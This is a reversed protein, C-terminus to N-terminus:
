ICRGLERSFESARETVGGEELVRSDIWIRYTGRQVIDAVDTPTRVGGVFLPIGVLAREGAAAGIAEPGGTHRLFDVGVEVALTIEEVTSVAAGVLRDGGVTVRAQGVSSETGDLFVGDAGCERALEGDQGVICLADDRRCAEAVAEVAERWGTGGGGGRLEVVDVGGAIARSSLEGAEDATLSGGDLVLYLLADELRV